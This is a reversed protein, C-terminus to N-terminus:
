NDQFEFLDQKCVPLKDLEKQSFKILILTRQPRGVVSHVESGTLISGWTIRVHWLIILKSMKILACQKMM